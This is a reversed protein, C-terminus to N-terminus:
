AACCVQEYDTARRVRRPHRELSGLYERHIERGVSELERRQAIFAEWEFADDETVVATSGGSRLFDASSMNYKEEFRRIYDEVERLSFYVERIAPVSIRRRRRSAERSAAPM